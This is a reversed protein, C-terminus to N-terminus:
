FILKFLTSLYANLFSQVPMGKIDIRTNSRVEFSGTFSEHNTFKANIYDIKYGTKDILYSDLTQRVDNPSTILMQGLAINQININYVEIKTVSLKSIDNEIELILKKLDLHINDIYFGVGLLVSLKNSFSKISRPTNHIELLWSNNINIFKFDVINFDPISIIESDGLPNVVEKKFVKEEIFKGTIERQTAKNLIFGSPLGEQFHNNNLKNAFDRINVPIGVKFWKITKM